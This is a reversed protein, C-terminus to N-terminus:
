WLTWLESAVPATSCAHGGSASPSTASPCVSTSAASVWPQICTPSNDFLLQLALNRMWTVRITHITPSDSANEGQPYGAAQPYGAGQPGGYAAPPASGQQGYM